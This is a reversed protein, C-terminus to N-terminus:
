YTEKWYQIYPIDPSVTVLVVEPQNLSDIMRLNESLNKGGLAAPLNEIAGPKLPKLGLYLKGNFSSVGSVKVDKLVLAQTRGPWRGTGTFPDLAYLKADGLEPCLSLNSQDEPIPKPVFTSVYLVGYYLHPSTTVYEPKTEQTGPRLKLAWGKYDPDAPNAGVFAEPNVGYSFGGIPPTDKVYPLPYLDSTTVNGSARTLDQGWIYQEPNELKRAENQDPVILDSTGGFIMEDGNKGKGYVLAKPIAIPAGGSSLLQFVSELKWDQVPLRTNCYLVNGQSDATFFGDTTKDDGVVYIVPSIMMGLSRQGTPDVFDLSHEGIPKLITGSLPDFAYVVKGHSDLGLRYGLGGPLVGVDGPTHTGTQAVSIIVPNVITLGLNSYDWKPIDLLPSALTGWRAVGNHPPSAEHGDGYRANDAAWLFM